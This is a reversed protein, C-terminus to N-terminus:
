ICKPTIKLKYLSIKVHIQLKYVADNIQINISAIINLSM